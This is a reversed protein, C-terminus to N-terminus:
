FKIERETKEEIKTSKESAFLVTLRKLAVISRMKGKERHMGVNTTLETKRGVELIFVNEVYECRM